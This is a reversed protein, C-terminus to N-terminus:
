QNYGGGLYANPNAGEYGQLEPFLGTQGAGSAINGLGRIITPAAIGAAAGAGFALNRTRKREEEAGHRGYLYAGGTGLAGAAGVGAAIRGMGSARERAAVTADEIGKALQAPQDAVLKAHAAETAVARQEAAAARQVALESSQAARSARAWPSVRNWGRSITRGARSFLEADKILSEHAEKFLDDYLAFIEPRYRV